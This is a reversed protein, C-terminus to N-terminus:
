DKRIENEKEFKNIKFVSIITTYSIFIMEEHSIGKNTKGLFIIECVWIIFDYVFRHIM